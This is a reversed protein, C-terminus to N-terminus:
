YEYIQFLSLQVYHYTYPSLLQSVEILLSMRKKNHYGKLSDIQETRKACNKKTNYYTHKSSNLSTSHTETRYSSDDGDNM